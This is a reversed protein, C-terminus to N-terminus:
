FYVPRGRWAARHVVVVVDAGVVCCSTTARGAQRSEKSCLKRLSVRSACQLRIPRRHRRYKAPFPRAALALSWDPQACRHASWEAITRVTAGLPVPDCGRWAATTGASEAASGHAPATFPVGHHRATTARPSLPTPAFPAADSQCVAADLARLSMAPCVSPQWHPPPSPGHRRAQCGLSCRWGTSTRTSM